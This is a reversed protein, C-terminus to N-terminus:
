MSSGPERGDPGALDFFEDPLVAARLVDSAALVLRYDPDNRDFPRGPDVPWRPPVATEAVIVGRGQHPNVVFMGLEVASGDLKVVSVFPWADDPVDGAEGFLSVLEATKKPQETPIVKGEFNKPLRLAIARESTAVPDGGLADYEFSREIVVPICDAMSLGNWMPRERSSNYWQQDHAMVPLLDYLSAAEFRQEALHAEKVTLACTEAGCFEEQPGNPEVTMRVFRGTPLHRLCYTTSSTM